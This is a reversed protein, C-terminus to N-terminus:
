VTWKLRRFDMLEHPKIPPPDLNYWNSMAVITGQKQAMKAAKHNKECRCCNYKLPWLYLTIILRCNKHVKKLTFDWGVDRCQGLMLGGSNLMVEASKLISAADSDKSSQWSFSSCFFIYFMSWVYVVMYLFLLVYCFQPWVICSCTVIYLEFGVHVSVMQELLSTHPGQKCYKPKHKMWLFLRVEFMNSVVVKDIMLRRKSFCSELTSWWIARIRRIQIWFSPM